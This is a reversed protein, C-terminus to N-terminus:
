KKFKRFALLGGAAVLGCFAIGSLVYVPTNSSEEEEENDAREVAEEEIEDVEDVEDDTRPQIETPPDPDHIIIDADAQHRVVSGDQNVSYKYNGEQNVFDSLIISSLENGAEVRWVQWDLEDVKDIQYVGWAVAFQNGEQNLSALVYDGVYFDDMWADDIVRVTRPRLQRRTEGEILDHASVIYEMAEIVVENDDMSTIEGILLTDHDNRMINDDPDIGYATISFMFFLITGVIIVKKRKVM